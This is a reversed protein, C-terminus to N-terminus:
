GTAKIKQYIEESIKSLHGSLYTIGIVNLLNDILSVRKNHFNLCDFSPVYGMYSFNEGGLIPMCTMRIYRSFNEYLFLKPWLGNMRKSCLHEKKHNDISVHVVYAFGLKIPDTEPQIGIQDPYIYTKAMWKDEPEEKFYRLLDRHTRMMSEYRVFFFKTGDYLIIESKSHGIICLDNAILKCGYERCLSIAVSIKGTGEKGLILIGRDDCSVAAAHITMLGDGQRQIELMPYVLYALMEGDRITELSCSISILKKDDSIAMDFKDTKAQLYCCLSYDTVSLKDSYRYGPIWKTFIGERLFPSLNHNSFVNVSYAGMYVSCSFSSLM